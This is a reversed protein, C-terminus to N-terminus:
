PAIEKRAESILEACNGCRDEPYAWENQHGQMAKALRKVLDQLRAIEADQQRITEDRTAIGDYGHDAFELRSKLAAIVADKAALASAGYLPTVVVEADALDQPDHSKPDVASFFPKGDREQYRWAVPEIESM